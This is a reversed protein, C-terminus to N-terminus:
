ISAEQKLVKNIYSKLKELGPENYPTHNLKYETYSVGQGYRSKGTKPTRSIIIGFPKEIMRPIERGINTLGILRFCNAVTLVKGDLLAMALAAKATM